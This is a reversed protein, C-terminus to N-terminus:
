RSAVADASSTTSTSRVDTKEKEKPEGETAGPPTMCLDATTQGEREEIGLLWFRSDEIRYRICYFVNRSESVDGNVLRDKTARVQLLGPAARLAEEGSWRLNSSISPFRDIQAAIDELELRARGVSDPAFLALLEHFQDRATGATWSGVMSTIYRAMHRLYEPSASAAGVQLPTNVGVPYVVTRVQNKASTLAFWNTLNFLLMLLLGIVLMRNNRGLQDLKSLYGDANM